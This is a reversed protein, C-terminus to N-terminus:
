ANIWIALQTMLRPRSSARLLWGALFTTVNRTRPLICSPLIITRLSQFCTCARFFFSFCVRRRWRCRRRVPRQQRAPAARVENIALQKIHETRNLVGAHVREYLLQMSIIILWIILLLAYLLCIYLNIVLWWTADDTVTIWYKMLWWTQNSTLTSHSPSL